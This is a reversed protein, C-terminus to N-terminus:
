PLGEEYTQAPVVHLGNLIENTDLSILREGFSGCYAIDIQRPSPTLPFFLNLQLTENAAVTV